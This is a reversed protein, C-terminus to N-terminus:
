SNSRSATGSLMERLADAIRLDGAIAHTRIGPRRQISLLQLKAQTSFENLADLADQAAISFASKHSKRRVCGAAGARGRGADRALMGAFVRYRAFVGGDSV